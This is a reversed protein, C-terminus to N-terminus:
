APHHALPLAVTFISGRELGPSEAWIRGGHREIIARAITLGLGMGGYRRTMPDEVQYFQDFIRELEGADLGIGNDQVKIWVERTRKEVSLTIIGGPPTFKIANNLINTLAMEVKRRDANVQIAEAPKEFSVSQGNAEALSSMEAYANALVDNLAVIELELESEDIRVYRLNTMDEILNRLHLASQLVAEAHDSAEGQAEDKLFSAYGLIVGLPTRLEHSAISIFDNKLKNLQDLDEYARRLAAVLQATEIAVAAQSALITIHRMDDNDFGGNSKNVVELVGILKDKIQMPVGLISRTRYDTQKEVGKFHRPDHTTDDIIIARNEAIITGAISGEIPVVMGILHDSVPGLAAAFHLDNTHKDVLLISASEAGTIEAASEMIYDLLPQLKLTSNMVLSVQVLRNLAEFKRQMVDLNASQAMLQDSLIRGQWQIM